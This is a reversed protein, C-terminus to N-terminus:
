RGINGDEDIAKTGDASDLNVSHAGFCARIHGFYEDDPVSEKFITCDRTFPYKLEFVRYLQRIAQKVIDFAMILQLVNLSRYDDNPHNLSIYPLGNVSVHLWDKASCIINWWNKGNYECYKNILFDDHDSIAHSFEDLISKDLIYPNM